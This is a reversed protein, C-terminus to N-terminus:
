KKIRSWLSPNIAGRNMQRFATEIESAWKAGSALENMIAKDEELQPLTEVGFVVQQARCHEKVFLLAAWAPSLNHRQAIEAFQLLYPRVYSLHEPVREPPMVLLGQLFPSRAFVTVNNKKALEFFDTADLRQDFANYPVQVYDVGLEAAQLAEPEDYISVGINKVLGAAQAERMGEVMHRLYIYHPSHFLYGDLSELNLRKLSKELERMVVDSARTGDPYDNLAHPRMKSIIRVKGALSRERIWSGLVDEAGGYAYATDFTDIGVALAADLISFSEERTPQGHTNNLGYKMGLQVTGLVLKTKKDTM